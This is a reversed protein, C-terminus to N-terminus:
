AVEFCDICGCDCECDEPDYFCSYDEDVQCECFTKDFSDYDSM